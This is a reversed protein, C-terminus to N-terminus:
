PSPAPEPVKVGALGDLFTEISQRVSGERAIRSRDGTRFAEDARAEYSVEVARSSLLAGTRLDTLEYRITTTVEEHQTRFPQDVAVLEASLAFRAAAPTPALLRAAALSDSLALEVEAPELVGQKGTAVVGSIRVAGLLAPDTSAPRLQAAAM